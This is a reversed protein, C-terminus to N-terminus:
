MATIFLWLAQELLDGQGESFIVTVLDTSDKFSYNECVVLDLSKIHLVCIATLFEKERLFVFQVIIFCNTGSFIKFSVEEINM